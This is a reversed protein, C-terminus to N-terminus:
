GFIANFDATDEVTNDARFNIGPLVVDNGTFVYTYRQGVFSEGDVIAYVGVQIETNAPIDNLCFTFFKKNSDPNSEDAYVTENNATISTYVKSVTCDATVSGITIEFGLEDLDEMKYDQILGVFRVGGAGLKAQAGVFEVGVDKYQAVYVTDETVATIPRDWGEFLGNVNAGDIKNVDFDVQPVTGSIWREKVDIDGLKWTVTYATQTNGSKKLEVDKISFDNVTKDRDYIILAINSYSMHSDTVSFGLTVTTWSGQLATDVHAIKGNNNSDLQTGYDIAATLTKSASSDTKVKFTLTYSGAGYKKVEENIIRYIGERDSNDTDTVKYVLTGNDYYTSIYQHSARYETYRSIGSDAVLLNEGINIPEIVLKNGSISASSAMNTETLKDYSIYEVGGILITNANAGVGLHSKIERYPLYAKGDVTRVPNAFFVQYKGIFVNLSNKYNVTQKHATRVGSPENSTDATISFEHGSPYSIKGWGSFTGEKMVYTTGWVSATSSIKSGDVYLNTITVKHNGTNKEFTNKYFRDRIGDIKPICVNTIKTEGQVGKSYAEVYLFGTTSTIDQAYLNKITHDEIVTKEGTGDYETNIVNDEARFVYIDELHSNRVDTQPFIANCTTGVLIDKYNANDEYNLANDGCYVFCREAYAEKLYYNFMIGDSSMQTSLIKVNTVSTREAYSENWVGQVEINYARGNLLHVGDIKTDDAGSVFVLCYDRVKKYADAENYNYIDGYPDVIAGRGIIKCNNATVKIRANLVAGPAIYVVSNDKTLNLYGGDIEQWGEVIFTNEDAEPIDTEPEDALLAINTSDKGDLRVMFYIPENLYVQITGTTSDFSSDLGKASPLVSYSTFDCNVKINVTVAGEFAFSSFRRYEDSSVDVTNRVTRSDEAHNYVPLQTTGNNDTVSVTYMYDREIREDFEPYAYLTGTNSRAVTEATAVIGIPLVGVLMVIALWLSVIRKKM